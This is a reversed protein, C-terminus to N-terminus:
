KLKLRNIYQPAQQKSPDQQLENNPNTQKLEEFPLV